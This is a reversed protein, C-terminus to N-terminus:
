RPTLTARNGAADLTVTFADLVDRGLLGDIQGPVAFAVVGLPGVQAGALDLRPVNVLTAASSGTVGTIRFPTGHAVDIGARGLASPSIVTRDAGTDVLLRLPVGNLYAEVMVPAGAPVPVVSAAPSASPQPARASPHEVVQAAGRYEQPITDPESTYYIVGAADVWRYLAATAPSAASLVLAVALLARTL